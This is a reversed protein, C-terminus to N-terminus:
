SPAKAAAQLVRFAELGLAAGGGVQLADLLVAWLYEMASIDALLFFNPVLGLDQRILIVSVENLLTQAIQLDEFQDPRLDVSILSALTQAADVGLIALCGHSDQRPVDYCSKSEDMTWARSAARASKSSQELTDLLLFEDFSLQNVLLGDSLLRARNPGTPVEISFSQLYDASGAGKFGVRAQLCLDVMGLQAAAARDAAESEYIGVGPGLETEIMSAGASLHLRYLPSRRRLLTELVNSDASTMM